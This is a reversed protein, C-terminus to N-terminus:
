RAQPSAPFSRRSKASSCGAWLAARPMSSTSLAPSATRLPIPSTPARGAMARCTWRTSTMARSGAMSRIGSRSTATLSRSATVIRAASCATPGRGAKCRTTAKTASCPTTARAATWRTTRSGAMILDVETGGFLQDRGSGGYLQDAGAGGYILDQGAEGLISDADAGGSLTDNGGGGTITDNGADGEISDNGDVHGSAIPPVGILPSTTLNSAAIGPGAITASLSDAGLNEWFYVEITYTQGGTLSVSGSRTTVAQHFDNDLNFVVNGGADRIIIRSGDDSTTSFTYSGTTNIGLTSRYVVGYDNRDNGSATGGLTNRLARVGFDDVYGTGILTGSEIFQTQNSASSFDRDYVRYLWQGALPGDGSLRDAGGGGLITDSGGGGTLSDVGATGTITTNGGTAPSTSSNEAM